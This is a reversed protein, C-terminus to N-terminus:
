NKCLDKPPQSRLKASGYLPFQFGPCLTAALGSNIGSLSLTLRCWDVVTLLSVCIHPIDCQKSSYRVAKWATDPWLSYLEVHRLAGQHGCPCSCAQWDTINVWIPAFGLMFLYKLAITLLYFCISRIIGKSPEKIGTMVTLNHRLQAMWCTHLNGQTGLSLASSRIAEDTYNFGKAVM